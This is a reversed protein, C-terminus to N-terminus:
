RQKRKATHGRQQPSRLRTTRSAPRPPVYAFATNVDVQGRSRAAEAGARPAPTVQGTTVLALTLTYGGHILEIPQSSQDTGFEYVVAFLTTDKKAMADVVSERVRELLTGVPAALQSPIPLQSAAGILVGILGEGLERLRDVWDARNVDYVVVRMQFLETTNILLVVQDWPSISGFRPHGGDRVYKGESPGSKERSPDCEWYTTLGPSVSETTLWTGSTADFHRLHFVFRFNANMAPLRPPFAFGKLLLRFLPM